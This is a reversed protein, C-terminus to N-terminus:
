TAVEADADKESEAQESPPAAEGDGEAASSSAGDETTTGRNSTPSPASDRGASRSEGMEVGGRFHAGDELVVRPASIDGEVRATSRVVVQEDGRLDGVVRGEVSIVRAVIDAEVQGDPGVTVSNQELEVSGDVHGQITLDEDGTVEGHIRISNGIIARDGGASAGTPEPASSPEPPPEPVDAPEEDDDKRDKWM